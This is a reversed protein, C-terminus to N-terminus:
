QNLESYFIKLQISDPHIVFGNLETHIGSPRILLQKRDILGTENFQIFSTISNVYSETSSEYPFIAPGESGIPSQGDAQASLFTINGTSSFGSEILTNLSDTLYLILSSPAKYSTGISNISGIKLEALSINADPHQTFFSDIASIDLKTLVGTGAQVYRRGSSPIFETAFDTIESLGSSSRDTVLGYYSHSQVSFVQEDEETSSTTYNFTINTGALDIGFFVHTNADPRIAFGQFISKFGDEDLSENVIKDFIDAAWVDPLRVSFISDLTDIQFAQQAVFDQSYPSSEKTYHTVSDVISAELPAVEVGFVASTSGGRINFKLNLFASAFTASDPISEESKLGFDLFSTAETVGFHGDNVRGVLLTGTRSSRISDELVVSSSIAIDASAFRLPSTTQLGFDGAEECSIFLLLALVIAGFSKKKDWWNM